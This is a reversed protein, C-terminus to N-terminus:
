KASGAPRSIKGSRVRGITSVHPSKGFRKTLNRVVSVNAMSDPYEMTADFLERTLMVRKKTLKPAPAKAPKGEAMKTNTALEVKTVNVGLEEALDEFSAYDRLPMTICLTVYTKM